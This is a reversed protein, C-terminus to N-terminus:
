LSWGWKTSLLEWLRRLWFEFLALRASPLAFNGSLWTADSQLKSEAGTLGSQSRPHFKISRSMEVMRRSMPYIVPNEMLICLTSGDHMARAIMAANLVVSAHLNGAMVSNFLTLKGLVYLEFMSKYVYRSKGGEVITVDQSM